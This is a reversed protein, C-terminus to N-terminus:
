WGMIKLRHKVFQEKELPKTLMDAPQLETALHIVSITKDEIYKRFHHYKTNFYRTRPRMKPVMAITLAGLNDEFVKCRFPTTNSAIPIGMTSLEEMLNILPTVKQLSTSLGIYESETATLSIESQLQSAWSIPVGKYTIIYGHRSRATDKDNESHDPDWNGAFDADVYVQLGEDNLQKVIGKDQTSKLYRGLWKIAKEHEKKPCECFRACEHVAYSIDPRSCRELFNMM